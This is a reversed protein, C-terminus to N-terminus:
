VTVQDVKQVNDKDVGKHYFCSWLVSILDKDETMNSNSFSVYKFQKRIWLDNNYIYVHINSSGRPEWTLVSNIM